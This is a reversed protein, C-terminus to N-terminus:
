HLFAQPCIANAKPARYSTELVDIGATVRDFSAGYKRDNDRVLFRPGQGFPAADRLQQAIWQDTPRRTIGFHVARRSGLEIIVFVFMTRFFINYTQFFDCAWIQSAHNRLFTFWNQKPPLSKRVEQIYKQITSKSV